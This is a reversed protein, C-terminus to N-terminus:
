IKGAKKLNHKCTKHGAAFGGIATVVALLLSLLNAGIELEAMDFTVM